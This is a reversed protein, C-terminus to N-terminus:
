SAIDKKNYHLFTSVTAILIIGMMILLYLPRIENEAILEAADIYKFVSIYKLVNLEEAIGSTVSLLYSVFVIGLSVATITRSKKMVASLLLAIAAFTLHILLTAMVFVSYTKFPITDDTFQFGILSIVVIATNIILINAAVALYKEAIIRKRSIPKSLLFEITKENEEKSIINSALMVAYISGLLTTYLHIQMGYYGILTGIDLQDMGFAKKFEDPYANLMQNMAEQDQSFQPYISLTMLIMGGIILSWIILSKLNKKLERKFILM